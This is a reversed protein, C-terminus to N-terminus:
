KPRAIINLKSPVDKLEDVDIPDKLTIEFIGYGLKQRAKGFSIDRIAFQAWDDKTGNQNNKRHKDFEKQFNRLNSGALKGPLGVPPHGKTEIYYSILRRLMAETVGHADIIM